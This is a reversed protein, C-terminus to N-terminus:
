VNLTIALLSGSVEPGLADLRDPLVVTNLGGWITQIGFWYVSLTLLQRLPLAAPQAADPRSADSM